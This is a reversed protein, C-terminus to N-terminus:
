YLVGDGLGRKKANKAANIKEETQYGCAECLFIGERNEGLRGCRSCEKSIDKGIVEVIEVSHERCKQTFRSRIYGRQWLTNYHNLKKSVGKGGPKPLRPIYVIRPKETRLFRNLEQNIYSHLREEYRKKKNRYKIRGPNDAKNRMYSGTQKRIWDAYETQYSGLMEGYRNGGDTTFMTCMGVSVGVQNTYDAHERVATQIPVKIEIGAKDPYLKIYLQSQYQNHDTLPIFVRKRKQKVSIYIGHDAYRYAREAISFGAAIDTHLKGLHRRVQRCLYNHLKKVEVERALLDYQKQLEPKLVVQKQNLVAEFGNNVKLLFRLYHKEKETFGDNRGTLKLIKSKTDTWQCKIDGLADFIALYYYVSPIGLRERLGDKTMENQVTYGPYIKSLSGIGGYRQYIYNKVTRYDEAVEQLKKMDDASVPERNHQCVTKCLKKQNMKM